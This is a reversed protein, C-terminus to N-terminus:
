FLSELKGFFKTIVTMEIGRAHMDIQKDALFDNRVLLIWINYKQHYVHSVKPSVYYLDHQTWVENSMINRTVVGM